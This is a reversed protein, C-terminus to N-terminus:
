NSDTGRAAKAQKRREIEGLAWEADGWVEKAPWYKVFYPHGEIGWLLTAQDESMGGRMAENIRRLSTMFEGHQNSLMMDIGDEFIEEIPVGLQEAARARDEERRRLEEPTPEPIPEHPM